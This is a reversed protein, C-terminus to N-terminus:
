LLILDILQIEFKALVPHIHIEVCIEALMDIEFSLEMIEGGDLYIHSFM